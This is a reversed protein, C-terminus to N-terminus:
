TRDDYQVDFLRSHKKIGIQTLNAAAMMVIGHKERNHRFLNRLAGWNKFRGNCTEHRARAVAKMYQDYTQDGNPTVSWQNGDYYGGDALYYEGDRLEWILGARAIRLDPWDGAKFPGNVWVIDGTQICIGIEYRVAARRLKHSFFGPDFPFPEYVAFDTGDVTVLCCSGNNHKFRNDWRIKLYLQHTRDFWCFLYNMPTSVIDINALYELMTWNWQRYTKEDCECISANVKESLYLKLFLLSWLLHKPTANPNIDQQCQIKKWAYSCVVPTCGFFAVFRSDNISENTSRTRRIIPAALVEFAHPPIRM